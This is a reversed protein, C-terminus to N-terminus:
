CYFSYNEFNLNGALTIDGVIKFSDFGRYQAILLADSLNNVPQQPTGIPFTTGEYVSSVDIWVGGDFSSYEIASNTILGASNASRISVQNVNVVDAINSNAGVLNVAYKGDEFTITYGNIIEVVMALEVGGVTVPPYHRHTDPYVIGDENDELDKLDLRFKNINLERIETPTAQVLTLYDKPIHIIKTGWDISIPM